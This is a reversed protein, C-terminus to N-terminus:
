AADPGMSRLLLLAIDDTRHRAAHARAIIVDALDELPLGVDHSLEDALGSLAEDMDIGPTEILGDTYLAITTGAPMPTDAQPFDGGREIGLLLGGPADLPRVGGGPTCMLPRPHGARALAARHHRLDLRLCACSAFLGPDLDSLLRNTAALIRGPDADATAYAHVATRIQGMLAAATVNHGQVDGIVAAVSDPGLRILDYFDGGIDMGETGPLYRAAAALGPVSPLAHPLLGAQLGHAVAVKKDYLMARELAQAILGGLSTLVARETTSFHHPRIYGLVCTGISRGSAIMPLFVWSAMGDHQGSRHPFARDLQERSEYFGPQGAALARAGATFSFRPSYRYRAIVEPPYGRHGVLRLRGRHVTLMAVAQAGYAPVIEEAVLAVVDDVTVAETLATALHLVHYLAGTRTLQPLDATVEARPTGAAPVEAPTIRVSIGSADPYLDFALWQDPPRVGTDSTPRGSIVAARYRDYLPDHLWPLAEWLRRGVLGDVPTGLLRAATPTVSTVRGHIDLACVGEPLRAAMLETASPTGPAPSPPNRILVEGGHGPARLQGATAAREMARGVEFALHGLGERLAGPMHDPQVGPWLVFMAGHVGPAGDASAPRPIPFAALAFEYPVALAIRPYSRMMVEESCVWVTESGRVADAVPIPAALGVREWPGIFEHPLGVMVVLELVSEARNLLYLAAAHAGLASLERHLDEALSELVDDDLDDGGSAGPIRGPGAPAFEGGSM